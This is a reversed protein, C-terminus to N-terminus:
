VNEEGGNLLDTLEKIHNQLSEIDNKVGQKLNALKQVMGTITACFLAYHGNFLCKPLDNCDVILTDILGLSDFLGGGDNVPIKETGDM